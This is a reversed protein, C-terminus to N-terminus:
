LHKDRELWRFAFFGWVPPLYFTGFRYMLAAAIGARALEFILAGEVVGIGGPIPVVGAFISVTINVFLLEPLGIPEGLALALAGLAVALLVENVMNGGLLMGLRRPSGLGRLASMAETWLRRVREFVPRRLRPIALIMALLPVVFVAIVAVLRVLGSTTDSDLDLDLTASTFTLIVSLLIVQALFGAFSDLAGVTLASGATLGQRQFFRVNLAIRAAGGPITLAIYSQALQLLYLRGVPVPIPSAGLASVAQFLRPVQALVLGM